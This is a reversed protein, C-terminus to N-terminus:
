EKEREVLNSMVDMMYTYTHCGTSSTNDRLPLSHRCTALPTPHLRRSAKERVHVNSGTVHGKFGHTCVSLTIWKGKKGM